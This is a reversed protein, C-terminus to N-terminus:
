CASSRSSALSSAIYLMALVATLSSYVLTRNILVDIEWLRYRLIAFSLTLPYLFLICYYGLTVVLTFLPRPFILTPFFGAVLWVTSASFGYVMWKTQQRQVPTSVYRYRYV